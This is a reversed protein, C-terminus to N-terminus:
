IKNRVSCSCLNRNSTWSYAVQARRQRLKRMTQHLQIHRASTQTATANTTHSLTQLGHRVNVGCQSSKVEGVVHHLFINTHTKDSWKSLHIYPRDSRNGTHSRTILTISMTCKADSKQEPVAGCSQFISCGNWPHIINIASILTNSNLNTEPKTGTM